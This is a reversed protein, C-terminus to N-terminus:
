VVRLCVEKQWPNAAAEFTGWWERLYEKLLPVSANVQVRSFRSPFTCEETAWQTSGCAAGLRLASTDGWAHYFLHSQYYQRASASVLESDAQTRVSPVVIISNSSDLDAPGNGEKDVFPAWRGKFAANLPPQDNGFPCRRFPHGPPPLQNREHGPLCFLEHQIKAYEAIIPVMSENPQFAILGGNFCGIDDGELEGAREHLGALPQSFDWLGSLRRRRKQMAEASEGFGQIPLVDGDMYFVRRYPLLFLPMKRSTKHPIQDVEFITWTDNQMVIGHVWKPISRDTVLVRARQPDLAKLAQGLVFAACAFGTVDSIHSGYLLSAYAEDAWLPAGGIQM